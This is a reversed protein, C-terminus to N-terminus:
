CHDDLGVWESAGNTFHQNKWIPVGQKIREVLQGCAVFSERRHASSCAAVLAVDGITLSGVRHEAFATVGFEQEVQAVIAALMEAAQPHASYDLSEVGQGQDHNRVVGEFLVVAGDADGLVATRAREADLPTDLIQAHPM